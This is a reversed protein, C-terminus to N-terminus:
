RMPISEFWFVEDEQRGDMDFGSHVHKAYSIMGSTLQEPQGPEGQFDTRWMLRGSWGRVGDAPASGSPASGGAMGPLKGGRVFDFGSRFKVKYELYAEEMGEDFEAIWQAGGGPPGDGGAPYFVRM